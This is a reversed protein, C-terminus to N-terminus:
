ARGPDLDGPEEGSAPRDGDDSRRGVLLPVEVDDDGDGVHRGEALHDLVVETPRCGPRLAAGRDPGMHLLADDVEDGAVAGGEDEGVGTAEGFAEGGPEVLDGALLLGAVFM